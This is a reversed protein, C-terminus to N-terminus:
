QKGCNDLCRCRDQRLLCVPVGFTGQNWFGLVVISLLEVVVGSDDYRRCYVHWRALMLVIYKDEGCVKNGFHAAQRQVLATM